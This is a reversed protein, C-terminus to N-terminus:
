EMTGLHRLWRWFCYITELLQSTCDTGAFVVIWKCEFDFTSLSLKFQPILHIIVVSIDEGLKFITADQDMHWHRPPWTTQRRFHMSERLSGRGCQNKRTCRIQKRLPIQMSDNSRLSIHLIFFLFIIFLKLNNSASINSVPSSRRRRDSATHHSDGFDFAM